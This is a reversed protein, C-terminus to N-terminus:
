RRKFVLSTHIYIRMQRQLQRMHYRTHGGEENRVRNRMLMNAVNAMQGSPPLYSFIDSCRSGDGPANAAMTSHYTVTNVVTHVYRAETLRVTGKSTSTSRTVM